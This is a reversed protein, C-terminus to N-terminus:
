SKAKVKIPVWTSRGSGDDKWVLAYWYGNKYDVSGEDIKGYRDKMARIFAARDALRAKREKRDGATSKTKKRHRQTRKRSEEKRREARERAKQAKVEPDMARSRKRRREREAQYSPNEYAAARWARWQSLRKAFAPDAQTNGFFANWGMNGISPAEKKMLGQEGPVQYSRRLMYAFARETGKAFFNRARQGSVPKAGIPGRGGPSWSAEFLSGSGPSWPPLVKAMQGSTGQDVFAAYPSTSGIASYVVGGSKRPYPKTKGHIITTKLHPGPHPRLPRKGYNHTPAAAATYRVMRKGLRRTWSNIVKGPMVLLEGRAEAYMVVNKKKIAKELM